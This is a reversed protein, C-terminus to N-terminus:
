DMENTPAFDNPPSSPLFQTVTVGEALYSPQPQIIGISYHWEIEERM